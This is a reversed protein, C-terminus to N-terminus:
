RWSPRSSTAAYSTVCGIMAALAELSSAWSPNAANRSFRGGFHSRAPPHARHRRRSRTSPSKSPAPGPTPGYLSTTTSAPPSPPLSRRPGTPPSMPPLGSTAPLPGCISACTAPAPGTSPSSTFGPTKLPTPPAHGAPGAQNNTDAIGSFIVPDPPPDVVNDVTVSIADTATQDDTDTVVASVLVPGEPTTTTNWQASWGDAGDTDVGISSGDVSFAVRAVGVDDDAEATVTITGSVDAGVAPTTIAVSPLASPGGGGYFPDAAMAALANLARQTSDAPWACGPFTSDIVGFWAVAIFQEWGPQKFLDAADNIWDAKRFGGDGDEASAWEALILGKDPHDLGFQRLPEIVDELSRWPNVPNVRCDSWNYADAAIHDVWADGPYWDPAHRRDSPPLEFAYDTMIWVFEVKDAGRARFEDVFRRWAAIFEADTGGPSGGAEPEHSFTFWVPVDLGIVDDVWEIMTNYVNSGPQANAISEYSIWGGGGGIPKVSVLMKRGSAVMDTHFSSPFESNWTEFVRVFDLQRGIGAEFSEVGNTSGPSRPTAGFLITGAARSPTPAAAVATAVVLIVAGVIRALGRGRVM